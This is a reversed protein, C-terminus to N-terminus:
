AGHSAREFLLLGVMGLLTVVFGLGAMVLLFLLLRGARGVFNGRRSLLRDVLARWGFLAARALGALLAVLVEVAIRTTALASGIFGGGVRPPVPV